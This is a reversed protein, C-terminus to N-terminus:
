RLFGFWFGDFLTPSIAWHSIGKYTYHGLEPNGSSVDFSAWLGSPRCLLLCLLVHYGTEFLTSFVSVWPQGRRKRAGSSQIWCLSHTRGQCGCGQAIYRPRFALTDTRSLKWSLGESHCLFLLLSMCKKCIVDKKLLLIGFICLWKGSNSRNIGHDGAISRLNTPPGLISELNDCTDPPCLIAETCAM